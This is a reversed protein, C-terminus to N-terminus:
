KVKKIGYFNLTEQLGPKYTIGKRMGWVSELECVAIVPCEDYMMQQVKHYLPIRADPDYTKSLDALLATWEPTSWYHGAMGQTLWGFMWVPELAWDGLSYVFMPAHKDGLRRESFVGFEFENIKTRIGCEALQSALALAITEHAPLRGVFIDFEVDIGNPYGAQALLAKGKAIDYPYPQL